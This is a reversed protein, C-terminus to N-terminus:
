EGGEGQEALWTVLEAKRSAAPLQRDGEAEDEDEAFVAYLPVLVATLSQHGFKVKVGDLANDCRALAQRWVGGQWRTNRFLEALAQHSWAVALYGPEGTEFTKAGWGAAKVLEGKVNREAPKRRPNVLKLGMQELRKGAHEDSGSSERGFLPAAAFNLARGIWTGIAEREDGGRAQAASTTIHHLCNLEEAQAGAIEAIREPRCLGAWHNVEEDPPLGDKTDWQELLVDACALLTGLQDCARADHGVQQLALHFKAKTADLREFGDIMRRQLKRGLEGLNWDGLVLPKGDRPLPKLELIGLRSRDQPQLPPILISSFMFASRLTFEHAQHDQGGRQLTGGSSSIRALEVVEQVRRNDESAEIEDFMVPVTSNKLSQRIAAASANSTRFVGGDLLRAIAGDEGNLTSKGTGRGGTIWVNPRWALAGGILAAGTWGLLFRPDLLERKWHWTRYLKLLKEAPKEDVAEHWPRPIPAAATYVFREHLGVELWRWGKIRGQANVESALLKDGCHLVLGESNGLRHAGRGRMRGSPDFIGAAVCAEVHARAAEAQDFGVIESPKVLVRDKGRGEYVPASWQPWQAELFDSAPGYLAILGLKGHRNNAELGVLQGNWNLYYMRQSGDIGSMNGLPKVPGGKPFPPRERQDLEPGPDGAEALLPAPQPNDLADAIPNSATPDSM